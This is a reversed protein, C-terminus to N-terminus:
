DNSSGAFLHHRYDAWPVDSPLLQEVSRVEPFHNEAESRVVHPAEDSPRDLAELLARRLAIIPKDSYGLTEKTRDQIPGMTETAFADHVFHVYGMGTFTETKMEERDQLFRNSQNRTTRHEADLFSPNEWAHKRQRWDDDIAENRTFLMDFEWTSTDDIPVHWLVNYGHAFGISHTSINPFVFNTVKVFDEGSEAGRIAYIRLGFETREVELRPQVDARLRRRDVAEDDTLGENPTSLDEAGDFFRHLFSLHAPDINGEKKQLFNCGVYARHIATQEEPLALFEYNPLLPPEGDGLYAFVLGAAEICPYSLHCVRDKLRSAPPEAPQELCKGDVDYLWGHYLCRLGGDEIRGYSLDTGRHSCHRGILGVRGRDDRFLVLDEGLVRVPLPASGPRVESALGVPQWYQRMLTGMPTGPGVRTLRENQEASIM